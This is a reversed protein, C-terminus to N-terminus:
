LKFAIGFLLNITNLRYMNSKNFSDKNTLEFDDRLEAAISFSKKNIFDYGIGASLGKYFPKVVNEKTKRSESSPSNSVSLNPQIYINETAYGAYVGADIFFKNFTARYLIPLVIRNFILHSKGDGITNGVIDTLVINSTINKREYFVSTHIASTKNFNYQFFLGASYMVSFINKDKSNPFYYNKAIQTSNPGAEIGINIKSRRNTSDTGVGAAFLACPVIVVFIMIVVRMYISKM